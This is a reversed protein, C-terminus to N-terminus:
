VMIRMSNQYNTISKPSSRLHFVVPEKIYTDLELSDIIFDTLFRIM